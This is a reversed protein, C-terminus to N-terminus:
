VGDAEDSERILEDRVAHARALSLGSVITSAAHTGATHVIVKALGMARELPGQTVDSHQLRSHAISRHSRWWVGQRIELGREDVRYRYRRHRRRPHILLFYVLISLVLAPAGWILVTGFPALDLLLTLLTATGLLLTAIVGVVLGGIVMELRLADPHPPRFGDTEPAEPGSEPSASTETPAGPASAAPAPAQVVAEPSADAPSADSPAADGASLDDPRVDLPTAVTARPDAPPKADGASPDGPRADMPTTQPPVRPVNGPHRPAPTESLRDDASSHADKM